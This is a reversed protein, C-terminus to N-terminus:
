WWMSAEITIVNVDPRLHTGTYPMGRLKIDQSETMAGWGDPTVQSPPPQVCQLEAASASPFASVGTGNSDLGPVAPYTKGGTDSTASPAARGATDQIDAPTGTDCERKSYIYRSYQIAIQEHTVLQSRFVIRPSLIMFNQNKYRSNPALYDFRTAFALVPFADFFFDTGFKMKVVGDAVPDDSQVKNWMGYFKMTLDQGEAFPNMGLLDGLKAEYQGAITLVGGNGNSCSYGPLRWRCYESDLYNGVVGMNYDGGGFSHIVETAAGVTTAYRAKVYSSGLYLYGFLDPMDFRVEGGFITMKGDPQQMSQYQLKQENTSVWNPQYGTFRAEEQTWNHLMHLGVFISQDWLMDVHAHHVLTFRSSNYVSSDPRKVGFGHEIGFTLPQDALDFELRMNEGMTHTRGFLYTDYEGADWRGAMGYRSWFAGAKVKFRVNEWPMPPAVELWGQSVGFQTGNVYASADTFNYGQVGVVGKAWSNGYGFFLEGWERRSHNTHQWSLYQDDPVLPAHLTTTSQNAYHFEPDRKGMGIRAPARFYGSYQFKWADADNTTPGGVTRSRDVPVVDKKPKTEEPAAANSNSNAHADASAKAGLSVSAHANANAAAPAASPAPPPAPEADASPAAAAAAAAPKPAPKSASTEDLKVDDPQVDQAFAPLSVLLASLLLPARFRRMPTDKTPRLQIRTPRLDASTGYCTASRQGTYWPRALLSLGKRILEAFGM